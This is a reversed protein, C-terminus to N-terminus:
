CIEGASGALVRSESHGLQLSVDAACSRVLRGLEAARDDNWRYSPVSISIAAVASGGRDRIPAAVCFVDFNSECADWALGEARIAPLAARLADTSAISTPTMVELERGVPYLEDIVEPPQCALMAKGGATLHAPLRGGIASVMQVAHTSEIRVIYIVETWELVAVHITEGTKEGALAASKRAVQVLDLRAEYACGLEFLRLGLQYRASNGGTPALYGRAQLTKILEHTTTRPLGLAATIEPAGLAGQSRLLELVDLARAVAPILRTM